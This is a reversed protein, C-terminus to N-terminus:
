HAYCDTVSSSSTADHRSRGSTTKKLSHRAERVGVKLEQILEKNQDITFRLAQNKDQLTAIRKEMQNVTM